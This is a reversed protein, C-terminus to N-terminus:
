EEFRKELDAGLVWNQPWEGSDVYQQSYDNRITEEEPVYNQYRRVKALKELPLDKRALQASRKETEVLELNPKRDPSSSPSSKPSVPREPLDPFDIGSTSSSPLSSLLDRRYVHGNRVTEMLRNHSELAERASSMVEITTAM